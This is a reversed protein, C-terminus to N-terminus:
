SIFPLLSLFSSRLLKLVKSLHYEVAKESLKLHNAIEKNSYGDRKSMKFVLRSKDSLHRILTNFHDQLEHETSPLTSFLQEDIETFQLEAPKKREQKIRANIVEYKTAASLYASLNEVQSANERKRWLKYFVDQVIEESLQFDKLRSICLSFLKKWYRHYIEGFANEDGNELFKLLEGDTYKSYEPPM